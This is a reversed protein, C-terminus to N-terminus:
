VSIQQIGKKEIVKFITKLHPTGEAVIENDLVILPFFLGEEIIHRIMKKHNYAHQEQKDM